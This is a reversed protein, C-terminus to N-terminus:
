HSLNLLDFISDRLACADEVLNIQKECDSVRTNLKLSVKSRISTFNTDIALIIADKLAQPDKIHSSQLNLLEDMSADKEGEEVARQKQEVSVVNMTNNGFFTMQAAINNQTSLLSSIMELSNMNNGPQISQQQQIQEQQDLYSQLETFNKQREQLQKQKQNEFLEQQKKQSSSSLNKLERRIGVKEEELRALNVSMIPNKQFRSMQHNSKRMKQMIATYQDHILNYEPTIEIEPQNVIEENEKNRLGELAALYKDKKTKKNEQQHQNKQVPQPPPNQHQPLERKRKMINAEGQVQEQEQEQEEEEEGNIITEKNNTSRQRQQQHGQQEEEKSAASAERGSDSSQDSQSTRRPARKTASRSM